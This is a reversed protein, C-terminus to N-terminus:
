DRSRRPEIGEIPSLRGLLVFYKGRFGGTSEIALM